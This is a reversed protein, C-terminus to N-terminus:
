TKLLMRDPLKLQYDRLRSQSAKLKRFTVLAKFSHKKKLLPAILPCHPNISILPSLYDDM